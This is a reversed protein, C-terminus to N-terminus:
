QSQLTLCGCRSCEIGMPKLNGKKVLLAQTDGCNECKADVCYYGEKFEGGSRYEWVDNGKPM